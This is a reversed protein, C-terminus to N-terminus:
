GAVKKYKKETSMVGAYSTSCDSVHPWRQNKKGRASRRSCQWGRRAAGTEATDRQSRSQTWCAMKGHQM